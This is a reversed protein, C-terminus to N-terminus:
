NNLRIKPASFLNNENFALGETCLKMNDEQWKEVDLELDIFQQM